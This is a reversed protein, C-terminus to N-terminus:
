LLTHVIIFQIKFHTKWVGNCDAFCPQSFDFSTCNQPAMSNAEFSLFKWRAIHGLLLLIQLSSFSEFFTLKLYDITSGGM